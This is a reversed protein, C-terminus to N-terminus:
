ESTKKRRKWAEALHSRFHWVIFLGILLVVVISFDHMWQNIIGLNEGAKYGIWVFLASWLFSGITTYLVFLGLRMQAIGAPYAVLGRVVPLCRGAMTLAPGYKEFAQHTRQLDRHSIFFYKGYKQLFPYGGYRGIYYGVLGGALQAATGLFLVVWVNFRGTGALAGGIALLVESPIPIGFSDLVLGVSMGWYGLSSMLDTAIKVFDM